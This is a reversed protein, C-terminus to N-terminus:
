DGLEHIFFDTVIQLLQRRSPNLDGGERAFGHAANEVIILTAPVGASVLSDYMSESQEPLVLKDKDGQLILFPPDDSSAYSVPSAWNLKEVDQCGDADFARMVVMNSGSCNLNFDAPGFMDVVAQVRSSREPYGGSGEFGDEPDTVGLLSVLHGGASGGFAGIREPDINYSRANARLHRVACKVDEIHAPFIYAPSLRYNVSVVLFNARVMPEVFAFGAGSTKDGGTWGGGHVYVVVPWAEAITEPYYVDMKLEVGAASCYTVDSDVTGLKDHDLSETETEKPEPQSSPTAESGQSGSIDNGNSTQEEPNLSCAFSLALIFALLSIRKTMKIM